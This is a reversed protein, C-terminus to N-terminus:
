WMLIQSDEAPPKIRLHNSQSKFRMCACHNCTSGDEINGLSWLAHVTAHQISLHFWWWSAAFVYVRFGLHWVESMPSSVFHVGNELRCKWILIEIFNTGLPRVLLIEANTWIIAQRRGPSLGNDSGIITLKSVCIHTVSGRHTLCCAQQYPNGPKSNKKASWSNIWFTLCAHKAAFPSSVNSSISFYILLICLFYCYNLIYVVFSLHFVASQNMYVLHWKPSLLIPVPKFSWKITMWVPGLERSDYKHSPLLLM